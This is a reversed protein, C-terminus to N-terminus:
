NARCYYSSYAYEKESIVKTGPLDDVCYHRATDRCSPDIVRGRDSVIHPNHYAHHKM